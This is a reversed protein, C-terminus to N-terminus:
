KRAGGHKHGKRKRLKRNQELSKKYALRSQSKGKHEHGAIEERSKCKTPSHYHQESDLSYGNMSAMMSLLMINSLIRRKSM